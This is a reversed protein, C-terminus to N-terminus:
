GGKFVKRLADGCANIKLRMRLDLKPKRRDDGSNEEFFIRKLTSQYNEFEFEAL